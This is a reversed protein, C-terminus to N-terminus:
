LAEALLSVAKRIDDEGIGAFNMVLANTYLPDSPSGERRYESVGALSVGLSAAKKLM